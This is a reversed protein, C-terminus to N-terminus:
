LDDAEDDVTVTSEISMKSSSAAAGSNSGTAEGGIICAPTEMPEKFNYKEQSAIQKLLRPQEKLFNYFDICNYDINNKVFLMSKLTEM